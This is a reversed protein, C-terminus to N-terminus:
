AEGKEIDIEEGMITITKSKRNDLLPRIAPENLYDSVNGFFRYDQEIHLINKSFKIAGHLDHSVMIVTIKEDQNLKTVLDYFDQSTKPDLGTVPEDLVICSTTACLARALLVRQQQGGSLERFCHKKLNEIGLSSLAHNASDRDEKNFFPAIGKRNLRGSLVVEFVGAPFDKQVAKQQPLYGIHHPKLSQSYEISGKAPDKLRLLGKMLTSKGAGNSGLITLFDGDEVHFSLNEFVIKGDYAFSLDRCTILNM